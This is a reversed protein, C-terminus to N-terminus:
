ASGSSDNTWQWFREGDGFVGLFHFGLRELWRDAAEITPDAIAFLRAFGMDRAQQMVFRGAKHLAVPHKRGEDTVFVFALRKHEPTFGIGGLGLFEDGRWV